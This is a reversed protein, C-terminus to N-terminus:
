RELLERLKEPEALSLLLSRKDTEGRLYCVRSRDLLLCVAIEGNHLRFWGGAFGPLGTGFLRLGPKLESHESLDVVRLGHVRLDALAMRSTGMGTNVILKGQDVRVGARQLMWILLLLVLLLIAPAGASERPHWGYAPGFRMWLTAGLFVVGMIAVLWLMPKRRSGALALTTGLDTNNM